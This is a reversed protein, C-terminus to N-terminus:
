QSKSATGSRSYRAKARLRWTHTWMESEKGIYEAINTKANQKWFTKRFTGKWLDLKTQKDVHNKKTKKASKVQKAHKARKAPKM